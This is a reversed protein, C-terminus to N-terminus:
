SFWSDPIVATLSSGDWWELTADTLTAGDWWQVTAGGAPAVYDYIEFGIIVKGATSAVTWSFTDASEYEYAATHSVTPISKSLKSGISTFGTPQSIGVSTNNHALATHTVSGSRPTGPLIVSPSSAAGSYEMVNTQDILPVGDSASYEEAKWECNGQASPFSIVATGATTSTAYGYYTAMRTNNNPVALESLLTWGSAGTEDVVALTGSIGSPPDSLNSSRGWAFTLVILDGAAVPTLTVSYSTADTATSSSALTSVPSVTM